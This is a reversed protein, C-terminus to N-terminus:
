CDKKELIPTNGDDDDNNHSYHITKLTKKPSGINNDKLNKQTGTKIFTDIGIRTSEGSREKKKREHKTGKPLQRKWLWNNKETKRQSKASKGNDM